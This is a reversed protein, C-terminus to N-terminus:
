IKNEEKEEQQEDNRGEVSALQERWVQESVETMRCLYPAKENVSGTEAKMIAACPHCIEKQYM